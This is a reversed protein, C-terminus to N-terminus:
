FLPGKGSGIASATLFFSRVTAATKLPLLFKSAANVRKSFHAIKRRRWENDSISNRSCHINIHYVFGKTYVPAAIRYIQAVNPGRLLLNAACNLLRKVRLNKSFPIGM